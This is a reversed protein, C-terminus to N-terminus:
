ITIETYGLYAYTSCIFLHDDRLRLYDLGHQEPLRSVQQFLSPLFDLMIITQYYM